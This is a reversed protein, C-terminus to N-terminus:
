ANGLTLSESVDGVANAITCTYQGSDDATPSTITMFRDDKGGGIYKSHDICLVMGNKTWAIHHVNPSNSTIEYDCHLTIEGLGTSVRLTQHVPRDVVFYLIM